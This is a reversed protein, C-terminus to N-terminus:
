RDGSGHTNDLEHGYLELQTLAPFPSPDEAKILTDLMVWDVSKPSFPFCQAGALKKLTVTLESKDSFHLTASNWWADHPFDARLYFVAEDLVVTRGFDIKLAANPDQNIGWSTFPWPGHFHNAKIGDIANKAAFSAEGRTEVNASAFPFPGGPDHTAWPNFALNKRAAIEEPRAKRVQALHHKETFARPSCSVRKEMFPIPYVCSTEPLYVFASAMADDLQMILFQGPASCEVALTDGPVYEPEYVMIAEDEGNIAAKVKGVQDLVKLTIEIKVM